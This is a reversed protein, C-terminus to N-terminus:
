ACELNDCHLLVAPFVTAADVQPYDFDAQTASNQIYELRFQKSGDELEVPPSLTSMAGTISQLTVIACVCM